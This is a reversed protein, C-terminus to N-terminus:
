DADQIPMSRLNRVESEALRLSRQLRRREYISKLLVIGACILGFLWGVVFAATLALSKQIEIEVFALDLTIRGPNLAAFVTALTLGILVVVVFIINRVM